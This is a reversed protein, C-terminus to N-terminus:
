VTIFIARIHAVHGPCGDQYLGCRGVYVKVIHLYLRRVVHQHLGHDIRVSHPVPKLLTLFCVSDAYGKGIVVESVIDKVIIVLPRHIYVDRIFGGQCAPDM